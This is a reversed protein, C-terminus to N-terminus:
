QESSEEILTNNIKLVREMKNAWSLDHTVIIFCTKYKVKLELILEQLKGSTYNDLNGTPEDLFVCKPRGVLARAVAVRQCQGGSLERPRHNARDVLGVRELIEEAREKAKKTFVGRILLPMMVNEIASFESMLYHSQYVFGIKRNRFIEQDRDPLNHIDNGEFLVNGTNPKELGSLISILTTKGSGSKGVIGVLDSENIKINIDQFVDVRSSTDKYYKNLNNTQILISPIINSEASDLAKESNSRM